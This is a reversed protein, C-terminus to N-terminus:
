EKLVTYRRYIMNGEYIYIEERLDTGRRALVVFGEESAPKKRAYMFPWSKIAESYQYELGNYRLVDPYVKEKRPATLRFTFVVILIM